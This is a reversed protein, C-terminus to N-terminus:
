GSRERASPARATLLTVTGSPSGASRVDEFGCESLKRGLEGPGWPATGARSMRWRTVATHVDREGTGPEAGPDSTLATAAVLLGGPRLAARLRPLAAEATEPDLVSLPFWVLDYVDSESVDAVDQLRTEVRDRLGLGTLYEEALRLARPDVDLGVARAGPSREVVVASIAGIGTGVDLFRPSGHDLLGAFGPIRDTLADLFLRMHRGSSRGDALYAADDSRDPTTIGEAADAAQRLLEAIRRPFAAANPRSTLVADYDARLRWGETGREALGSAALLEGHEKPLPTNGVAAALAALVWVQDFMDDVRGMLDSRANVM